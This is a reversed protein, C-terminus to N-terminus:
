LEPEKDLSLFPFLQLASWGEIRPDLRGAMTDMSRTVPNMSTTCRNMSTTGIVM